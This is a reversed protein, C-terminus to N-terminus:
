KGDWVFEDEKAPILGRIAMGYDGANPTRLLTHIHFKKPEQNSLFVGSHHDFEVIVVPNQIRYYFPDEDGYGGIWSFYTEEPFSLANQLRTERARAPLYLLYEALIDHILNQQHFNLSTYKIGEYPVVRNDRYAGCLHRQDDKNWRGPPMAPDHLLKYTQAKDRLTSDLSQMLQLGLAAERNLITTGAYPGADIENPEAGTFWPTLFIQTRYLFINLCLHHGYLSFGWPRSTSPRGFLVFNYSYENMIAPSEVLQGLFGNIRMASVAKNYGEPSLTLKLINLISDRVEPTLEDLRLGKDSLLFEPNSWSRWEPSDIHYLVTKLQGADLKDLFVDAAQTIDEIPISEDQLKFLDPKVVGDSTVGKFPEEFLSRWHRYLAFLWPPQHGKHLFDDAYAHADLTKMGTFRPTSLDHLHERYAAPRGGDGNSIGNRNSM